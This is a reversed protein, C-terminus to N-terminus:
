KVAQQPSDQCLWPPLQAITDRLKARTVRKQVAVKGHADVGHLHFINKALDVGLTTVTM